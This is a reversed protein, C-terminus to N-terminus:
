LMARVGGAIIHPADGQLFGQVFGQIIHILVEYKTHILIVMRRRHGGHPLGSPTRGARDRHHPAGGGAPTPLCASITSVVLQIAEGAVVFLRRFKPTAPDNMPSTHGILAYVTLGTCSHFPRPVIAAIAEAWFGVPFTIPKSM